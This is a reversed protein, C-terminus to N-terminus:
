KSTQTTMKDWFGEKGGGEKQREGIAKTMPKKNSQNAKELYLTTRLGPKRVSKPDKLRHILIHIYMCIYTYTFTIIYIHAQM